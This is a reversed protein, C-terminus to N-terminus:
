ALAYAMPYSVDFQVGCEGCVKVPETQNACAVGDAPTSDTFCTTAATPADRALRIFGSEGWSASWSNRVLWYPKGSKKDTGYGVVVVGHNIDVNSDAGQSSCGDFVGGAYSHWTSADLAVAMPGVNALLSMLTQTPVNVFKSYGLVGVKPATKKAPLKCQEADGYYSAYPVQYEEYFGGSSALYDFALESTAGYCGGTGGCKGPNSVCNALQQPALSFLKGSQIAAISEVTETAAFAWCSGCQGQDKVASVVGAKVWNVEEPLKDGTLVHKSLNPETLFKSSAPKAGKTHGMSMGRKEAASLMSFQNLGLKYSKSKEANHALVRKKEAEFLAARESWAASGPAGGVKDQLSFKKVYGEFTLQSDQYECAFVSPPM